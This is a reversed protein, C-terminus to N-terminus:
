KIFRDEFEVADVPPSVIYGQIYECGLELLVDLQEKTEVGEALTKFGFNKSMAIITKIIEMSKPNQGMNDVFPKAIKLTDIPLRSLYELSSYGTGFDDLLIDIGMEQFEEFKRIVTSPDDMLTSETVELFLNAGPLGLSHLAEKVSDVFDHTQLQIPSMNVSVSIDIGTSEKWHKIQRLANYLMWRGIITIKGNDEAIPIFRDPPISGFQTSNWRILAECAVTKLDKDVIPQYVAHFGDLGKRVAEYLEAEININEHYQNGIEPTYVFGQEKRTEYIGLAIEANVMLETVSSGHDPFMTMGIHCGFSVDSAPPEHPQQIVASIEGAIAQLHERNKVHRIVMLFEDLRDSQYLNDEGIISKVRVGTMYLFVKMKDRTHRIRAYHRDLRLIGFGIKEGTKGAEAILERLRKEMLRRIPLGTHPDHVLLDELQKIRDKLIENEIKLKNNEEALDM